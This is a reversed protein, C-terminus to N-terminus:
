TPVAGVHQQQDEASELCFWLSRRLDAVLVHPPQHQSPAYSSPPALSTFSSIFFMLLFLVAVHRMPSDLCALSFAAPLVASPFIIHSFSLFTPTCSVFWSAVLLTVISGEALLEAGVTSAYACESGLTHVFSWGLWVVSSPHTLIYLSVIALILLTWAKVERSYM